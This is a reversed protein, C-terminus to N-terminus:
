HACADIDDMMQEFREAYRSAIPGELRLVSEQNAADAQKTWNMSGVWVVKKDIVVFKHHFTQRKIEKPTLPGRDQWIRYDYRGKSAWRDCKGASKGPCDPKMPACQGTRACAIDVIVQVTIQRDVLRDLVAAYRKDTFFYMAVLVQEKADQLDALVREACDRAPPFCAETVNGLPALALLTILTSM